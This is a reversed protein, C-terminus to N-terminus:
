GYYEQLESPTAQRFGTERTLLYEADEPSVLAFPNQQTFKHGRVEYLPNARVMKILWEEKSFLPVEEKVVIKVEPEELVAKMSAATIVGPASNEEAVVVGASETENLAAVLEPHNALHQEFTVGYESLAALVEAKNPLRDDETEVTVAFENEAIDRLDAVGYDKFERPLKTESLQNGKM